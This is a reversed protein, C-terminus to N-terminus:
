FFAYKIYGDAVSCPYGPPLVLSKFAGLAGAKGPKDAINNTQEPPSIALTRVALINGLIHLVTLCGFVLTSKELAADGM